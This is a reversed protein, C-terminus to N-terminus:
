KKARKREALIQEIEEAKLGILQDNFEYEDEEPLEIQRSSFISSLQELSSVLIYVLILMILVVVGIVWPSTIWSNGGTGTVQASLMIPLLLLFLIQHIRKM